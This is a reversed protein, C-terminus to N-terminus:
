NKRWGLSHVRLGDLEPKLSVLYEKGEHLVYEPAATPLTTVYHNKDDDIGFYMPDDSVYVHTKADKGYIQTRFLYFKGNHKVVQPCEAATRGDGSIGGSAVIKPKSWNKFDTTTRCYIKGKRDPNGTYYVHWVGDIEIAMPDRAHVAHGETFQASKGQPDLVREFTKGDESTQLCINYWDGYLMYYKGGYKFTYPAQLGGPQEGLEPKAEM